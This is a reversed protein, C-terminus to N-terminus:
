PFSAECSHPPTALVRFEYVESLEARLGRLTRPGKPVTWKIKRPRRRHQTACSCGVSPKSRLLGHCLLTAVAPTGPSPVSRGGSDYSGRPNRRFLEAFHVLTGYRLVVVPASGDTKLFSRRFLFVHSIMLNDRAPLRRSHSSRGEPAEEPLQPLQWLGQKLIPAVLPKM